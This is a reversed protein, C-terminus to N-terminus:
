TAPRGAVFVFERGPRDPADLVEEISYGAEGLSRAIEARSRFRLTSDSVLVVGDTEFEYTWRFAVRPGDVKTVECWSRVAGIGAVEIRRDTQARNWSRWAEKDPDRTEFVLHGAPRLASGIASLVGSWEDDTLFVQAVNGTMMALDFGLPPVSAADGLIWRVKQAGDKRRAVDLSAEAPDLGVVDLGRRAMRCAFTGTGCGVDLVRRAGHREVLAAYFDLDTREGEFADYLATLRPDSFAPDPM